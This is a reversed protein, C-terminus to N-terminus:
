CKSARQCGRVNTRPVALWRAPVVPWRAPVVLWEPLYEQESHRESLDPSDWNFSKYLFEQKMRSVQSGNRAPGCVQTFPALEKNTLFHPGHIFWRADM